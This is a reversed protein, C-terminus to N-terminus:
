PRGLRAARSWIADLMRDAATAMSGTLRESMSAPRSFCLGYLNAEDLKSMLYDDSTGLANTLGLEAARVGPWHEGTAVRDIDLTPRHESVFDKFLQHTDDIQEQFKERGGETILAFPSVTRKYEGATVDEYDVGLRDLLRHLNPVPAAVGISGLIAFPAAIIHDAVCAMMYGGSAAVRDVCVTLKLGHDRLRALQSAAFGYAHAMGGASELRLVVEDGRSSVALLASVEERLSDVASARIDGKFDLVFVNQDHEPEGKKEQKNLEKRRKAWAKPSMMAQQLSEAKKRMAANLRRVQLRGESPLGDGRRLFRSLLAITFLAVACVAFAMFVM